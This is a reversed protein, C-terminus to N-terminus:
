GFYPCVWGSTFSPLTRASADLHKLVLVFGAASPSTKGDYVVLDSLCDNFADFNAGYYDPFDLAEALARHAAAEETWLAADLTVVDYDAASLWRRAQDMVALDDFLVVPGALVLRFDLDHTLFSDPNFAAM